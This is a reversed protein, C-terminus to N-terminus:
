CECTQCARRCQTYGASGDEGFALCRNFARKVWECDKEPEYKKHWEASDECAVGCSGCSDICQEFAIVGGDGKVLCRSEPFGAM